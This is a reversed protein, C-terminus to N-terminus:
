NNKIKWSILVKKLVLVNLIQEAHGKLSNRIDGTVSRLMILWESSQFLITKVIDSPYNDQLM